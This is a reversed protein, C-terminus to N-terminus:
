RLAVSNALREFRDRYRAADERRFIGVARTYGGNVFRVIQVVEVNAGSPGEVAKGEIRSITDGERREEQNTEIRTLTPTTAFLRRALAHNDDRSGQAGSVHAILYIVPQTAARPQDSPGETLILSLGGTARVPRFGALDVVRFPLAAVQEDLSPPPRFAITRLAAEIAPTAADASAEPVMASVLAATDRTRALVLWRRYAVDRSDQRGRLIRGDGDAVPWAQSPESARIGGRAMGEPTFTPLMEDFTSRPLDAIVIAGGSAEDEFGVFSTAPVFGAPPVLGIRAGPPFVAQQALATATLQLCIAAAAILSKPTM